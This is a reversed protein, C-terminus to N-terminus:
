ELQRGEFLVGSEDCYWLGVDVTSVIVHVLPQLAQRYVNQWGARDVFSPTPAPEPHTHWEGLYGHRRASRRWEQRALRQHAKGTRIFSFRSRTDLRQPTTLAVIEFHPGRRAGLLVGGAETQKAALQRWSQLEAFVNGSIEILCFPARLSRGRFNAQYLAKEQPCYIVIFDAV